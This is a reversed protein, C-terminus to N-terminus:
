CSMKRIITMYSDVIIMITSTIFIWFLGKGIRKENSQGKPYRSQSYALRHSKGKCTPDFVCRLSKTQHCEIVKGMNNLYFHGYLKMGVM